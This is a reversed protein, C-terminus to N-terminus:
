NLIFSLISWRRRWQLFCSRTLLLHLRASSVSSWNSAVCWKLGWSIVIWTVSKKALLWHATFYRGWSVCKLYNVLKHSNLTIRSILKTEAKTCCESLYCALFFNVIHALFLWWFESKDRIKDTRFGRKTLEIWGLGAHILVYVLVTAPRQM